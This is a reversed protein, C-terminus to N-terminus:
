RRRELNYASFLIYAVGLFYLVGSSLSYFWLLDLLEGKEGVMLLVSIRTCLMTLHFYFIFKQIQLMPILLTLPSFLVQFFVSFILISAIVGSYRWKEGFIFEFGAGSYNYFVVSFFLSVLSLLAIFLSVGKFLFNKDHWEKAHGMLAQGFSLGVLTVPITLIRYAFVYLGGLSLGYYIPLVLSYLENSLINLFTGPTDYILYKKNRKYFYPVYTKKFARRRVSSNLRKIYFFSSILYSLVFGLILGDAEFLFFSLQLTVMVVLQLFRAKGIVRYSSSHIANMNQLRYFSMAFIGISIYLSYHYEFNNGVIGYISLPLLLLCTIFISLLLCLYSIHGIINKNIIPISYEVKGMSVATFITIISLTVGYVGFAEPNYLYALLPYAIIGIIQGLISYTLINKASSALKGLSINM